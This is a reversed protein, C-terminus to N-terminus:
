WDRTVGAGDFAVKIHDRWHRAIEGGGDTDQQALAVLEPSRGTRLHVLAAAAKPDQRELIAEEIQVEWGPPTALSVTALIQPSVWSSRRAAGILVGLPRDSREAVLTAVCGVLQPRWDHSLLLREVQTRRHEAKQYCAAVIRVADAGHGSLNLLVLYIGVGLPERDFTPAFAPSGPHSYPPKSLPAAVLDEAGRGVRADWDASGCVNCFGTSDIEGWCGAVQCSTM